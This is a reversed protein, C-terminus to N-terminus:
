ESKDVKEYKLIIVENYTHNDTHCLNFYTCLHSPLTKVMGNIDLFQFGPNSWNIEM